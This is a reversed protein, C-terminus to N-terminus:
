KNTEFKVAVSEGIRNISYAPGEVVAGAASTEVILDTNIPLKELPEQAIACLPLAGMVGALLIRQLISM